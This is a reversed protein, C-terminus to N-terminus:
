RRERMHAGMPRQGCISILETRESLEKESPLKFTPYQFLYICGNVSPFGMSLWSPCRCAAYIPLIDLLNTVLM